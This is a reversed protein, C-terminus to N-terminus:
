ALDLSVITYKDEFYIKQNFWWETNGLWGHVFIIATSGEGSIEYHIMVGDSSETYKEM